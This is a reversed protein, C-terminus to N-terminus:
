TLELLYKKFKVLQNGRNVYVSVNEFRIETNYMDIRTQQCYQKAAMVMKKLKLYDVAREASDEGYGTNNYVRTKVEIFCVVEEQRAVIDLEGGFAYFNRALIQYGLRMLFLSAQEEGWDGFKRKETKTM